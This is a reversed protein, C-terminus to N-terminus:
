MPRRDVYCCPVQSPRWPPVSRASSKRTPIPAARTRAGSPSEGALCAVLSYGRVTRFSATLIEITIGNTLDATEREILEALITEKLLATGYRFITRAQKRDARRFRGQPLRVLLALKCREQVM